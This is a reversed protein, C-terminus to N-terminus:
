LVLPFDVKGLSLKWIKWHIGAVKAKKAKPMAPSPVACEGACHVSFGRLGSFNWYPLIRFKAIMPITRIRTPDPRPDCLNKDSEGPRALEFGLM